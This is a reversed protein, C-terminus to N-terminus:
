KKGNLLEALAGGKLVCYLITKEVFAFSRNYRGFPYCVVHCKRADSEKEIPTEFHWCTARHGNSYYFPASQKLFSLHFFSRAM